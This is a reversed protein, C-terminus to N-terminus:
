RNVTYSIEASKYYLLMFVFSEGFGTKVPHRIQPPMNHAKMITLFFRQSGQRIYDLVSM